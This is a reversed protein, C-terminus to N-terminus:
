WQPRPRRRRRLWARWWRRRYGAAGARWSGPQVFSWLSVTAIYFPHVLAWGLLPWGVLDDRGLRLLGSRMGGIVCALVVGWAAILWGHGGAWWPSSLTALSLATSHAGLLVIGALFGPRYQQPHHYRSVWRRRQHLFAPWSGATATSVRASPEDVFRVRAGPLAGLRQVLLDEDGSPARGAVGFGGSRDFASRRYAQNNASTAVPLGLRMLARNVLMLSAWDLAEVHDLFGRAEGRRATEVFGAVMVDDPGAAGVLTRVWSPPHVCDADTTVIWDGDGAAVGHAVANVKPALRRSATEVRVLRVRDDLQSAREVISATADSSRDDVVILRLAGPYAQARLSALAAPLREAENRAPLVVDVSPWVGDADRDPAPAVPRGLALACRLVVAAYALALLFAALGMRPRTYCGGAPDTAGGRWSRGVAHRVTAHRTRSSSGGPM